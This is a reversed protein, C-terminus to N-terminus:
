TEKSKTWYAKLLIDEEVPELFTFEQDDLYWGEFEYGEKTPTKPMKALGGMSITQEEVLSGGDSDFTVVVLDSHDENKKYKAVFIMDERIENQFDFAKNHYYWGVFEYGEKEPIPVNELVQNELVQVSDIENGGLSDFLLTYKIAEQKEYVATLTINEKIETDFNFKEEGLYWGVFEYGEKVPDEPKEITKKFGTQIPTIISGGNSNFTVQYGDKKFYYFISGGVLFVVFLVIISYRFIKMIVGKIIIFYKLLVMSNEVLM